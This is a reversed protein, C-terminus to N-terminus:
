LMRTNSYENCSMYIWWGQINMLGATGPFHMIKGIFKCTNIFNQINIKHVNTKSSFILQSKIHFITLRWNNSPWIQWILYTAWFTALWSQAHPRFDTYPL